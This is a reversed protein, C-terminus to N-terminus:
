AHNIEENADKGNQHTDEGDLVRFFKEIKTKEGPEPIEIGCLTINAHCADASIEVNEHADNADDIGKDLLENNLM